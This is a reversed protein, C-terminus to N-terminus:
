TPEQRREKVTQIMDIIFVHVARIPPSLVWPEPVLGSGPNLFGRGKMPIIVPIRIHLKNQTFM